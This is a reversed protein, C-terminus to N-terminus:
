RGLPRSFQYSISVYERNTDPNQALVAIAGYSQHLRTYGLELGLHQSVNKLIAATGSFSHGDFGMESINGIVKNQTYAGTISGTLKRALQRRFSVSGDDMHVAGILGGGGAVLHSYSFALSNSRGQWALSAGAAPTWERSIATQLAGSARAPQVTDAYQPGGFLSISLGPSLYVTYFLLAAHSQTESLGATPYSLLRQYQYIAGLYHRSALRLSYFASGSQSASDFLGPVQSPDPYHLNTFDGAAGVMEDLAFQYTLDVDTVNSLRTAIPAIVSFNSVQAGGPVGGANGLDPQNFVNSTKQFADRARFTLGPSFRYAFDVSANHDAQNRSSTQQYFTFGPAYNAVWHMRSTTEDIAITPALSYSVDSVRNGLLGGLANDTHATTFAMGYRLYNGREESSFAQDYKMGIVPPPPQM